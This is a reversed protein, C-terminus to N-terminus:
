LYYPLQALYDVIVVWFLAALPPRLRLPASM